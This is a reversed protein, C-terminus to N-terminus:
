PCSPFSTCTLSGPSTDFGCDPFPATPLPGSGFVAALGYIVDSLDLQADANGDLAADCMALGTGFLIELTYIPDSVDLRGDANPDGRVFQAGDCEDPIGNGNSDSSVGSALDCGDLLGNGNCDLTADGAIECLDLLGDADCDNEPLLVDCEDPVQNRDCDFSTGSAIDIQDEVGNQNCDESVRLIQGNTISPAMETLGNIVINAVPPNGLNSDFSLPSTGAGSGSLIQYEINAIPHAVGAALQHVLQFDCLLAFVVGTGGVTTDEFNLFDPTLGGQAPDIAAGPLLVALALEASPHTLGFSVADVNLDSQVTVVAEVTDLPTGSGGVVTLSATQGSLDASVAITLLLTISRFQNPCVLTPLNLM